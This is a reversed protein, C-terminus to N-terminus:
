DTDVLGAGAGVERSKASSPVLCRKFYNLILAWDKGVSIGQNLIKKRNDQFHFTQKSVIDVPNSLGPNMSLIVTSPGSFEPSNEGESVLKWNKNSDFNIQCSPNDWSISCAKSPTTGVAATLLFPSDTEHIVLQEDTDDHDSLWDTVFCGAQIASLTTKSNSCIRLQHPKQHIQGHLDSIGQDLNNLVSVCISALDLGSFGFWLAWKAFEEALGFPVGAGVAARTCYFKVENQSLIQQSEEKM